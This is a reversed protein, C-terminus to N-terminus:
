MIKDVTRREVSAQVLQYPIVGMQEVCVTKYEITLGLRACAEAAANVDGLARSLVEAAKRDESAQDTM